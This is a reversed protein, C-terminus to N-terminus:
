PYKIWTYTSYTFGTKIVAKGIVFARVERTEGACNELLALVLSCLRWLRIWVSFCSFHVLTEQPQKGYSPQSWHVSFSETITVFWIYVLRWHDYNDNMRKKTSINNQRDPGFIRIKRFIKHHFNNRTSM